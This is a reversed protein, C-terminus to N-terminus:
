LNTEEREISNRRYIANYQSAHMKLAKIAQDENEPCNDYKYLLLFVPSYFHLAMTYADGQIFRGSDIFKQLVQRQTELVRDIFVYRFTEGIEENGYQEITLLRRLKSIYDDKLYFLFIKTCIDLFTDDTINDYLESVNDDESEPVKVNELTSYYRKLTEEIIKNLIDQKNKFHNYISSEKIGVESAIERITVADYGHVSFLSLAEYIIKDRTKM